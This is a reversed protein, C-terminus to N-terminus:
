AMMTAASPQAEIYRTHVDLYHKRYIADIEEPAPFQRSFGPKEEDLTSEAAKALHALRTRPAAPGAAPRPTTPTAGPAPFQRSFGPKEEDLTSEAAKVLHALLTRPDELGVAVRTTTPTIGADLLAQRSLESHSTIAPCLVITNPTGLSVQHGFVPDLC